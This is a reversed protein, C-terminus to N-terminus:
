EGQSQVGLSAALYVCCFGENCQRSRAGQPLFYSYPLQSRPLAYKCIRCDRVRRCTGATMVDRPPTFHARIDRTRDGQDEALEGGLDINSLDRLMGSADTAQPDARASSTLSIMIMCLRSQRVTQRPDKRRASPRPCSRRRRRRRRASRQQTRTAATTKLARARQSPQSANLLIYVSLSICSGSSKRKQAMRPPEGAM